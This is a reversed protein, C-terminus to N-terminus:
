TERKRTVAGIAAAVEVDARELRKALSAGADTLEVGMESAILLSLGLMQELRRVARAMTPHTAGIAAGAKNFSKWRAVELFLRLDSWAQGDILM